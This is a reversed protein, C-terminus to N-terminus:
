ASKVLRYVNIKQQRDADTIPVYRRSRLRLGLERCLNLFDEAAIRGPDAILATGGPKLFRFVAEAVIRGYEREYLVDSAVVYDFQRLPPPEERWNLPLTTLEGAGNSRVNHRAFELAANYYDTALVKFGALTAALSVLGLGCGLELLTKGRADPEDLVTAALVRSSPWIDAWYPLREDVVYDAESILDDSNSPHLIRLEHRGLAVITESTSLWPDV